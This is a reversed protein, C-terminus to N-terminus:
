TIPPDLLSGFPDAADPDMETPPIYSKVGSSNQYSESDDPLGYRYPTDYFNKSVSKRFNDHIKLEEISSYRMDDDLFYHVVDLMDSVEM